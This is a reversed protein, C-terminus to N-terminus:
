VMVLNIKNSSFINKICIHSHPADATDNHLPQPGYNSAAGGRRSLELYTSKISPWRRLRQCLMLGVYPSCSTDTPTDVLLASKHGAADMFM